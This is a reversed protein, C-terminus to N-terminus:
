FGMLSCWSQSVKDPRRSIAELHTELNTDFDGPISPVQAAAIKLANTMEGKCHCLTRSRLLHPKIKREARM